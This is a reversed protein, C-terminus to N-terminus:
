HSRKKVQFLLDKAILEKASENNQEKDAAGEFSVMKRQKKEEARLSPLDLHINLM